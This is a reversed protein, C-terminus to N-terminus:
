GLLGGILGSDGSDVSVNLTLAQMGGSDDPSGITLNDNGDIWAYVYDSDMMETTPQQDVWVMNALNAEEPGPLAEDLNQRRNYHTM